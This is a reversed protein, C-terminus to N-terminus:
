GVVFGLVVGLPTTPYYYHNANGDTQVLHYKVTDLMYSSAFWWPSAVGSGNLYKIFKSNPNTKINKYADYTKQYANIHNIYEADYYGSTEIFTGLVEYKTPLWVYDTCAAYYMGAYTGDGKEHMLTKPKIVNKLNTPLNNYVTTNLMSRIDSNYWGGYNTDSTRMAYQNPLLEKTIFTLEGNNYTNYGVVEATYTYGAYVFTKTAGIKYYDLFENNKALVKIEAWTLNNFPTNAYDKKGCMTCKGNLFNHAITAIDQSNYSYGCDCTYKSTGKTTCTPQLVISSTLTHSNIIANCVSCQSHIDVTGVNQYNHEIIPISQINIKSDCGNNLCHQSKSGEQICTAEKDITFLMSYNHNTTDIPLITEIINECHLCKTILIGQEVCTANQRTQEIYNHGLKAITENKTQTTYDNNSFKATYTKIGTAECTAAKTVANTITASVSEVNNCTACTRSGTCTTYGNWSYSANGYSHSTEPIETVNQTASCRSCHQSKSGKTTCTAEKDITYTTAFDHGLKALTEVKTQTAYASNSFKATYTKTGTAECTAAKTVANTITASVSEVNNCTACTRSGTCVTYGNWSYSANGYSHGTAPIETVNQTASCRSCHQSKSGKTTCTAEKDITYSTAFDHGLADINELTYNYGCGCTYKTKGKTECTPNVVVNENYTHTTTTKNCVSCKTHISESGINEYKHGLANVESDVYSNNCRTCTHTTCGKEECTPTTVVSKYEHGLVDINELTYTYGCACTYKTKGKNECTPQLVVNENYAHTTTTKNCVSCKTHISETGVNEYKHGLANVESDVYSDNCRTCTHTTYGKTECTPPTIESEYNHGLADIDELTYTDGCDCTYRTIGKTTCTPKVEISEKYNCIHDSIINIELLKSFNGYSAIIHYTNGIPMDEAINIIVKNGNKELNLGAVATTTWLVNGSASAPIITVEVEKNENPKLDLTTVIEGDSTFVMDIITVSFKSSLINENNQENGFLSINENMNASVTITAVDGPKASAKTKVLGNTVTINENDSNWEVFDNVNEGDLFANVQVSDNTSMKVEETSLLLYSKTPINENNESLLINFNFQGKWDGASMQNTSIEGNGIIDVENHLWEKKDQKVSAVIDNKGLQSMIFSTDPIVQISEKGSINTDSSVKIIYNAKNISNENKNGDLIITKPIFVGFSSSKSVYVDVNQITNAEISESYSTKKNQTIDVGVNEQTNDEINISGFSDKTTSEAFVFSPLITNLTLTLALIINFFNYKKNRKKM